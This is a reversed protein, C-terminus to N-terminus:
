VVKKISISTNMHDPYEGDNAIGIAEIHYELGCKCKFDRDTIKHFGDISEEICSKCLITHLDNINTYEENFYDKMYEITADIDEKTIEKECYSCLIEEM